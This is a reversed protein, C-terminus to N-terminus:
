QQEETDTHQEALVPQPSSKSLACSAWPRPPVAASPTMRTSPPRVVRNLSMRM